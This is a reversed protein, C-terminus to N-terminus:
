KLYSKYWEVFKGIGVEISTSPKFGTARILDDVDAFTIPVDGTQMPLSKEIAKQGTATEIATIFRRLTVPQNNGINQLKFPALASTGSNAQPQPIQDIVRLLGTVIDDIYTFDRQMNGNNFVSRM